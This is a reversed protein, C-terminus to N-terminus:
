ISTKEKNIIDLGEIIVNVDKKKQPPSSKEKSPNKEVPKDTEKKAQATKLTNKQSSKNAAIEQVIIEELKSTIDIETNQNENNKNSLILKGNEIKIDESGSLLKGETINDSDNIFIKKSYNSGLLKADIKVNKLAGKVVVTKTEPDFEPFEVNIEKSKQIIKSKKTNATLGTIKATTRKNSYGKKNQEKLHEKEFRVVEAELKKIKREMDKSAYSNIGISIFLFTLTFYKFIKKSSIM